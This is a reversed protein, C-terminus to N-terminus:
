AVYHLLIRKFLYIHKFTFHEFTVNEQLLIFFISVYIQAELFYVTTNPGCLEAWYPLVDGMKM